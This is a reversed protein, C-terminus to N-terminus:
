DPEFGAVPVVRCPDQEPCEVAALLVPRTNQGTRDWTIPGAASGAWPSLDRLADHIRARNFGAQKIADCLLRVSDYTQAAAFDASHGTRLSFERSFRDVATLDAPYPFILEGAYDAVQELFHRRGMAVTGFVPGAYVARIQRLLAASDLAGAVLVVAQVGPRELRDLLDIRGGPDVEVLYAPSSGQRSLLRRLEGTFIRSDHDLSSVIIYRGGASRKLLEPIVRSLQDQEGPLCSFMWPVNALNATRDTAGPNVLAVRAKAVVQEALHTSPGDVSGIVALVPDSYIMRAILSIGTGWPNESWAPALRVPLGACGGAQNVDHVAAVAAQWLDGHESHAPDSPGFYGLIVEQLGELDPEERGPGSYPQARDRYVYYPDPRDQRNQVGAAAVSIPFAALIVSFLVWWM